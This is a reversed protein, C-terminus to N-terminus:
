GPGAEGVQTIDLMKCLQFDRTVGKDICFAEVLWGPEPYWATSGFWMRIPRVRRRSKVGKHNRYSFSILTGDKEAM